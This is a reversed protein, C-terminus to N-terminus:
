AHFGCWSAYLINKSEDTGLSDLPIGFGKDTICTLYPVSFILHKSPRFARVSLTGVGCGKLSSGLSYKRQDFERFSVKTSINCSAHGGTNTLYTAPIVPTVSSRDSRLPSFIRFNSNLRWYNSDAVGITAISWSLSIIWERVFPSM